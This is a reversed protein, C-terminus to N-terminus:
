GGQLPPPVPTSGSTSGTPWVIPPLPAFHEGTEIELRKRAVAEAISWRRGLRFKREVVSVQEEALTHDLESDLAALEANMQSASKALEEDQKAIVREVHKAQKERLVNIRSDHLSQMTDRVHYQQALERFDKDTVTRAPMDAICIPSNCYAEMHRLRTDCAQRELALTHHLDVEASLHRDELTSTAEQHTGTLTQKLHQYCSKIQAQRDSHMNQITQRQQQILTMFRTQEELHTTRLIKLQENELSRRTAAPDYTSTALSFQEPALIVEKPAEAQELISSRRLSAVKVLVNQDDKIAAPAKPIMLPLTPRLHAITKKRRFGSIRRFSRKIKFLSSRKSSFSLISPPASPISSNSLSPLQTVPQQESSSCSTPHTSQSFRSSLSPELAVSSSVRTPIINGLGHIPISPLSKEFHIGLETAERNLRRDQQEETEVGPLESSTANDVIDRAEEKEPLEENGRLESLSRKKPVAMESHIM